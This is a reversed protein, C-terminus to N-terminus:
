KGTFRLALLHDGAALDSPLRLTLLEKENDANIASWPLAKSDISAEEIKLELVNLVLRDVPSRVSLKVTESGEFTLNDLNPVIRIAYAMPVVEKPLKGPTESFKFPKEVAGAPEVILLLVLLAVLSVPM